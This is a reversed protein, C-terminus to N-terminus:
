YKTHMGKAKKVAILRKHYNDCFRRCLDPTVQEWVKVVNSHLEENTEPPAFEVELKCKVWNWLNEIPNLDPSYPPWNIFEINNERLFLKVANSRHCPANDQM